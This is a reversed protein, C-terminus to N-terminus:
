ARRMAIPNAMPNTAPIREEGGYNGLNGKATCASRTHQCGEFLDVAFGGPHAAMELALSQIPRMLTLVNLAQKVIMRITGDPAQLTGRALDYASAGTVTVVAGNVATVTLTHKYDDPDVNCGREFFAFSCTRQYVRRLGRRKLSSFVPECNLTVIHGDVPASLVRGKWLVRVDTDDAHTRWVTVTTIVDPSYGIFTAALPNDYPLKLALTSKPIEGTIEIDGLVLVAPNWLSALRTLSENSTNYQYTVAGQVFRVLWVPMSDQVSLEKSAYSM